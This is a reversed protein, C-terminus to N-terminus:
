AHRPKRALRVRFETGAAESSEVEVVGGHACVVQQVIYLGLGLGQQGARAARREGQFFPDFLHPLAEAPIPPGYNHVSVVVENDTGVVRVTVARSGDGHRLANTLLNAFVQRLRDPDGEHTADGRVDIELVCDPRAVRSEEVAERALAGLDVPCLSLPFGGERRSRAFELLQEVMATMRETSHAITSVLRAHAESLDAGRLLVGAAMKIASLPSALDHGLMGIFLERVQESERKALRREIMAGLLRASAHLARRAVQAAEPAHHLAQAAALLEEESAGYREAVAKVHDPRAPPEGYALNISGVVEGRARLPVAYVSMGSPCQEDVPRGLEISKKAVAWCGNRCLWGGSALAQGDDLSACRGRSGEDLLRCWGSRRGATAYDGNVEYVTVATDLLGLYEDALEEILESGANDLVTRRTNLQVLSSFRPGDGARSPERGM